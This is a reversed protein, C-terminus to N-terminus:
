MGKPGQAITQFHCQNQKFKLSLFSSKNEKMINHIILINWKAKFSKMLLKYNPKMNRNCANKTQKYTKWMAPLFISASWLIVWSKSFNVVSKDPSTVPITFGNTSIKHHTGWEYIQVIINSTHIKSASSDVYKISKGKSRNVKRKLTWM